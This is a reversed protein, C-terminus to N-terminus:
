PVLISIGFSLDAVFGWEFSAAPLTLQYTLAINRFIAHAKELIWLSSDPM